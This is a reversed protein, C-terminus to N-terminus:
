DWEEDEDEDDDEAEYYERMISDAAYIASELAGTVTAPNDEDTAEGAFFLLEDVSEGLTDYMEGRVGVPCHAYAGLAYPDQGWRTIVYDTPEPIDAGFMARLGRMMAAVLAEDTKDEAKQADVGANVGCLIPKQCVAQYNVMFGCWRHPETLKGFFLSEDDDWFAEDFRLFIKNYLGVGLQDIAHQKWDPLAPEFSIMDTKLVGLPVTILACVGEHHNGKDDTITVGDEESWAIETIPTKLHIDLGDALHEIMPGYGNVLLKDAGEYPDDDEFGLLSLRGLEMGEDLTIMNLGFDFAQMDMDTGGQKTLERAMATAVSIDEEDGHKKHLEAIWDYIWWSLALISETQEDDLPGDAGFITMEEYETKITELELRKILKNVPNRRVGHIWAAGQDLSHGLADITHVRGGVRDRAEFVTVDVGHARLRRAASLGAVGAGIVLVRPADKAIEPWESSADLLSTVPKIPM